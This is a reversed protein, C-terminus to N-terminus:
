YDEGEGEEDGEEYDDDYDEDDEDEDDLDDDDDEDEDEEYDDDDEEEGDEHDDDYIGFTKEEDYPGVHGWDQRRRGPIAELMRSEDSISLGMM